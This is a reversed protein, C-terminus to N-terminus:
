RRIGATGEVSRPDAIIGARIDFVTRGAIPSSSPETLTWVPSAPPVPCVTGAIMQDAAKQAQAFQWPLILNADSLYAYSRDNKNWCNFVCQKQCVGAYGEGGGRIARETTLGTASPGTLPLKALAGEGLADGWFTRALIDRDRDTVSM